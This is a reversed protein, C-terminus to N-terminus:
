PYGTYDVCTNNNYKDLLNAYFNAQDILAQQGAKGSLYSGTGTFNIVNALFAQADAVLNTIHCVTNDAGAQISLKAALLQAALGYAADSAMKKGSVIDTKNLINVAKLCDPSDGGTVAAGALFLDGIQQPLNGDLTKSWDGRQKAKDYQKGSSQACSSWNKWYGITRANGGPTPPPNNTVVLTRDDGYALVISACRTGLDQPPSDVANPNFFLTGQLPQGDLTATASWAVALSLECVTYTAPALTFGSSVSGGNGLQFNSIGTRSFDFQQAGGGTIVKTITLRAKRQNVFTCTVDGGNTLVITVKRNPVDTTYGSGTCNIATLDWSTNAGETIVRSGGPVLNSFVKTNSLTADDDDDLPFGSLGDGTTTFSFDTPDKEPNQDDKVITIKGRKTNTFTCTITEGAAPTVSLTRTAVTGTYTAAGTCVISTLDYGPTPDSEVVTKATGPVINSFTKTGNHILSFNGTADFTQSFTFSTATAGSEAPDTVKKITVTGRKTNTFTCTITEGAAPTVSLTRTAVTGTYTAAGTCVISSLDYGPTPDSEIVTKAAGIAVNSFTKTGNHILSFNGTGDFTQSFSFSTATAADTEAPNTVKKITVSALRTNTITCIIDQGPQITFSGGTGSGSALRVTNPAARDACVRTSSYSGLDTGTGNAEGFTVTAGPSQNTGASVEKSGTTNGPGTCTADTKEVTGNISLNFTGGDTTPVCAKVVELHAVQDVIIPLDFGSCNCKSSTGPLTGVRFNHPSDALVGSEPCQFGDNQQWSLCSGIHLSSTTGPECQYTVTGLSIDGTITHGFLDGCEDGDKNSVGEVTTGLAPAVLNYHNCAGTRADGGDTALWIGINDREAQDTQELHANLKLTIPDGQKCHIEQGTYIHEGDADFFSKIDVSAISIDNATCHGSDLAPSKGADAWDQALCQGEDNFPVDKALSPRHPASVGRPAVSTNDSCAAYIAVITAATVIPLVFRKMVLTGGYLSNTGRVMGDKAGTDRARSLTM